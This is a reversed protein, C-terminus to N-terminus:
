KKKKQLPQLQMMKLKFKAKEYKVQTEAFEEASVAAKFNESELRTRLFEVYKTEHELPTLKQQKM